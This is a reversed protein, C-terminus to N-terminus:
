ILGQEKAERPLTPNPPATGIRASIWFDWGSPVGSIVDSGGQVVDSAGGCSLCSPVCRGGGGQCVRVDGHESGSM